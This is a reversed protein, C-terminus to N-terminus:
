AEDPRQVTRELQRQTMQRTLVAADFWDFDLRDDDAWAMLQAIAPDEYGATYRVLYRHGGKILSFQNAKGTTPM